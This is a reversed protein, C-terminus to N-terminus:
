IIWNDNKHSRIFAFTEKEGKQALMSLLYELEKATTEHMAARGNGRLFYNLACDDSYDKGKYIKSAAVRDCFMEILYKRPMKVPTYKKTRPDVDCWYEFHHRNRGKHHMWAESYGKAEREGENPSRYGQYYKVGQKFEACSFKSLDHVLGQFPIGAKRCHTFVAARHRTVTKLHGFFKKM